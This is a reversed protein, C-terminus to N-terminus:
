WNTALVAYLDANDADTDSNTLYDFPTSLDAPVGIMNTTDLPETRLMAQYPQYRSVEKNPSSSGNGSKISVSRFYHSSGSYSNKKWKTIRAYRVLPM